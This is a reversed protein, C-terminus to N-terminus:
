FLFTPASLPIFMNGGQAMVPSTLRSGAPVRGGDESREGQGATRQRLAGGLRNTNQDKTPKILNRHSRGHTHEMFCLCCTHRTDEEAQGHRYASGKCCLRYNNPNNNDNLLILLIAIMHQTVRSLTDERKCYM